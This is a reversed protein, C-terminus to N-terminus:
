FLHKNKSLSKLRSKALSKQASSLYDILLRGDLHDIEHLLIRGFIGETTLTHENGSLDKYRVEVEEPRIVSASIGPLSLCGEELSWTEQSLSSVVPNVLVLPAASVDDLDRMQLAIILRKGIGVQPAALGIGRSSHMTNVMAEAIKELGGDFNEEAQAIERLIPSGYTVIDLKEM